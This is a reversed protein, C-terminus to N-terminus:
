EVNVLSNNGAHFYVSTKTLNGPLIFLGAVGAM